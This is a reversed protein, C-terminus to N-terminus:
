QGALVADKLTRLEYGKKTYYELIRPLILKLRPFAKYSDHLVISSGYTANKIVNQFCAEASFDEDYDGSVVDWMVIKFGKSSLARAQSNSIKGFPPRFLEFNPKKLESQPFNLNENGEKGSAKIMIREAQWTNEEYIETSTKWGNLHNYTHNGVAHGEALIQQFIHPHKLVNEGICFFTGKANYKQLQDLVWPTVEPVPGDDFSLYITNPRKLRTIRGPYLKKLILPYKPLFLKM